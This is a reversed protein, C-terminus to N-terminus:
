VSFGVIMETNIFIEGKLRIEKDTFFFVTDNIKYPLDEDPTLGLVQAMSVAEKETFLPTKNIREPETIKIHNGIPLM